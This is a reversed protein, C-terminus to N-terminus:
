LESVGLLKEFDHRNVQSYDRGLIRASEKATRGGELLGELKYREAESMHKWRNTGTTHHIQNM